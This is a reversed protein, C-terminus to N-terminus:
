SILGRSYAESKTQYVGDIFLNFDIALRDIHLSNKIGIGVKANREAQEKLRYAAGFTLQYNQETAWIIM